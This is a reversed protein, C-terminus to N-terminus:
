NKTGHTGHDVSCVNISTSVVAYDFEIANNLWNIGNM